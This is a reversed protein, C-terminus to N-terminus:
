WWASIPRQATPRPTAPSAPAQTTSPATNEPAVISRDRAQGLTADKPLKEPLMQWGRKAQPGYVFTDISDSVNGVNSSFGTLLDRGTRQYQEASPQSFFPRDAPRDASPAPSTDAPNSQRDSFIALNGLDINFSRNAVLIVFLMLLSIIIFQTVNKIIRLASFALGVLSIGFLSLFILLVEPIVFGGLILAIPTPKEPPDSPM